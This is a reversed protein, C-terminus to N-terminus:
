ASCIRCDGAYEGAVALREGSSAMSPIRGLYLVQEGKCGYRFVTVGKCHLGYALDFAALVDEVTAAAPLNCTKSVANDTHQQFAAQIRIHWEPPIDLATQFLLKLDEPVGPVDALTGTAAVRASLTENWLGAREFASQFLSNTESWREGDLSHREYSLAFLPEIGSSTDALISITGTPAITTVTANRMADFGRQPWVSVSFNAFSGRERALGASAKHAQETIAAMLRGAFQEAAESAYPIGLQILLEAFGMVGLGIKRNRRTIRDSEALPYHGVEIVDDLFRVALDVTERLRDWDVDSGIALHALNISGLNCAEYPLLPQEGCPNTAEIAGLSPTPNDRNIEDLFVIGPDGTSWAAEGVARWLQRAPLTQVVQGTRPNVISCDDDAEVRHMFDDTLGVSLNFNTLRGPEQKAHVFELIDPHDVRLIGMNAGRRRGGQKVVDTALDFVDMFSVPGSAVGGTERVVDGKPRLHSFSFGTGGGTQHILAMNRVAEFIEAISDGVPLVFCAALQSIDTGANMLTPSNPLFDLSAMARYFREECSRVAEQGGYRSEGSSVARAVRRFMEDPTEVVSGSADKLLYRHKLVTLANRSLQVPDM